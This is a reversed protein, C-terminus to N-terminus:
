SPEKIKNLKGIEASILTQKNGSPWRIEVKEIKPAKGLGFHLRRQNQSCFGAGGSVEQLQQKGNWSLKIQAGIASRNSATGELEFEIWSNEPLVNNRYLLLPAKQNGVVVDLVGRNEFDALAVARGDYQDKAGVAQAVEVFKGSGDNLWVRKQQYGSLSMDAMEPWKSVDSIINANAGTILSYPYWYSKTPNASVYGNTLYIDLYGDNNLDGFQAGFSWGGMDVGMDHALNDYQFNQPTRGSKPVWLNNGQLLQDPESINSVYVALSGSNLVDGTTANMGSKPGTGFRDYYLAEKGIEKFGKGNQNAYIESFGFDNAIFIDPYGTGRLDAATVSLSWRRSDIGMKETVDEFKGGGVNHMLYKRGGNSAYEFSNQMIHTDKINWFDIDERYYGCILLDLKGDGDYDLWCATNANIWKPLNAEDTVRKFGMGGENHFLEPKGWKYIFLDEYGDNDYDGFIAGMCCGTGPKNLDALGMKATIDEFKGNGLNRYLACQSGIGSNTVFMDQWGDKDFDVIAVAAGMAAINPEIRKLKPDLIPSQHVFNIGSAKAVETLQFGYRKLIASSAENSASASNTAPAIKRMITPVFLLAVFFISLVVKQMPRLTM